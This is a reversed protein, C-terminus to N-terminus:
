VSSLLSVRTQHEKEWFPHDEEVVYDLVTNSSKAAKEMALLNTHENSALEEEYHGNFLSQSRLYNEFSAEKLGGEAPWKSFSGFGKIGFTVKRAKAREEKLYPRDELLNLIKESKKQVSLGWNFGKEDVYRFNAMERIIDEDSEFEDAVRQPGHTLLHELLILAKYSARWNWIDFKSLREHLIHVVREYDDVEFAAHSILRMANTNSAMSDGNTIEETLIQVPTVDTLVLRATKIKEKLFFSAQKKFEYMLSGM